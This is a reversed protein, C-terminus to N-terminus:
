TPRPAQEMRLALVEAVSRCAALAELTVRTPWMLPDGGAEAGALLDAPRAWWARSIEAGDPTAELGPPAATAFFRADFRVALGEPAVWRAVEVLASAPPPDFAVELLPRGPHRRILGDATLLLGAEEYLERLACARALEEPDGFLRAALGADSPDVVGGPFVVFGPAFPSEAARRLALVEVGEPARRAVIVTAAPRPDM